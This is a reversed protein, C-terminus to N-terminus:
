KLGNCDGRPRANAYILDLDVEIICEPKTKGRWVYGVYEDKFNRELSPESVLEFEDSLMKMRVAQIRFVSEALIKAEKRDMPIVYSICVFLFLTCIVIEVCRGLTVNFKKM